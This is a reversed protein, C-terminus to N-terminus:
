VTKAQRGRKLSSRSARPEAVRSPIKEERGDHNESVSFRLESAFGTEAILKQM